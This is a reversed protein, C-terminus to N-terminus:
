GDVDTVDERNILPKAGDASRNTIARPGEVEGGLDIVYGAIVNNGGNITIGGPQDDGDLQRAAELAVKALAAPADKELGRDRLTQRLLINRARESESVVEIESFYHKRFEPYRMLRRARTLRLGAETAAEKFAKGEILLNAFRQVRPIALVSRSRDSVVLPKSSTHDM